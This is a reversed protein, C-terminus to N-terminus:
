KIASCVQDFVQPALAADGGIISANKANAGLFVSSPMPLQEKESLLLAHGAASVAAADIGASNLIMVHDAKLGGGMARTAVAAATDIRTAGALREPSPLQSMVSDPIAATGGIVWTKTVKLATLRDATAAPVGGATVFLTSTRLGAAAGAAVVGDILHANDGSAIFVLGGAAGVRDAVRGATDFRDSGAIREVTFKAELSQQVAASIAATGGILYVKKVGLRTLEDSTAAPVSDKETLLLPGGVNTALSAAPAADPSVDQAQILVAAPAATPYKWKSIAVATEFRTVGTLRNVKDACSRAQPAPPAPAPPPAEDDDDGPTSSLTDDDKPPSESTEGSGRKATAGNSYPDGCASLLLLLGSLARVTSSRSMMIADYQMSWVLRCVRSQADFGRGFRIVQIM